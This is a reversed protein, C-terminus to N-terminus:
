GAAAIAVPLSVLGPRGGAALRRVEGVAAALLAAPDGVQVMLQMDAPVRLGADAIGARVEAAFGDALLLLCDPREGPRGTCLLHAVARATSAYPLALCWEARAELGHRRAGALVQATDASRLSCVIAALRRRRGASFAACAAEIAPEYQAVLLSAGAPPVGALMGAVVVLPGRPYVSPIM